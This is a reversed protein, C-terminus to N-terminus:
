CGSVREVSDLGSLSVIKRQNANPYKIFLHILSIAVIDGIGVISKINIFKSHLNTDNEIIERTRYIWLSIDVKDCKGRQGIAKAFNHSQEPNLM